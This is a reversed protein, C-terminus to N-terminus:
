FKKANWDNVTCDRECADLEKEGKVDMKKLKIKNKTEGHEQDVGM